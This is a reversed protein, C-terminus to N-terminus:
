QLIATEEETRHRQQKGLVSLSLGSGPRANRGSGSSALGNSAVAGNTVNPAPFAVARSSSGNTAASASSSPATKTTKATIPM